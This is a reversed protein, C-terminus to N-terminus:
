RRSKTFYAALFQALVPLGTLVAVAASSVNEPVIVGFAALLVVVAYVFGGATLGAAVKRTPATTPQNILM